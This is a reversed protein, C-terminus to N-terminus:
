LNNSEESNHPHQDDYAYMPNKVNNQQQHQQQQQQPDDHNQQHQHYQQHQLHPHITNDYHYHYTRHLQTHHHHQKQQKLHNCQHHPMMGRNDHINATIATGNVVDNEYGDSRNTTNTDTRVNTMVVAATAIVTRSPNLVHTYHDMFRTLWGNSCKFSSSADEGYLDAYLMRARNRIFSPTSAPKKEHHLRQNRVKIIEILISEM